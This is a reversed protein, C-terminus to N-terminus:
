KKTTGKMKIYLRKIKKFVTRSFIKFLKTISLTQLNRETEYKGLLWQEYKQPWYVKSRRYVKKLPQEFINSLFKELQEMKRELYKDEVFIPERLMSLYADDNQDLEIIKSVVDDFSEYDACNIFARHNYIDKVSSSGYYIPITDALFADAIKETVFGEHATSEFCLSFKCQKQFNIKSEDTWNVIEGNPMNNLYSGISEVRKYKCLKKFFDGRIGYESEHGAIFNAFYKKESLIAESYDRQKEIMLNRNRSLVMCAPLEFHRDRFELPYRSIAYDVLNFDPIYNEGVYMIRVQPYNCYEYPNGFISCIIYDADETVEVNYHKELVQYIINDEVCFGDWFGVFKVKITKMENEM